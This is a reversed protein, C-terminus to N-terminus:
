TVRFKRENGRRASFHTEKKGTKDIAQSFVVYTGKPLKHKLKFSFATTGKAKVLAPRSCRSHKKAKVRKFRGNSRLVLCTPHKKAAIKAGGSLRLLGIEVRAIGDSDSASGHFSKLKKSKVKSKLGLIKSHPEDNASGGGGGGGGTGPTVTQDPGAFTGFDSQAVARYHFTAPLGSLAASFSTAGNSPGIPQAATSSGYSPTPGFEFHVSTAAGGPDVSGNLTAAGGGVGSAPGTDVAPAYAQAFLSHTSSGNTFLFFPTGLAGGQCASGDSNFPNATCGSSIPERTDVSSSISVGSGDMVFTPNAPNVFHGVFAQNTGQRWSVYPTNGSFTVDARAANSTAPSIPQGGNAIKFRAEGGTGVLRAVFIRTLGSVNEDWVVWPVTPTGSTMTGAAVRPDEADTTPDSNLTCGRESDISESCAGLGGNSTDLIGIGNRGVLQWQIGGDGSGAVGKAAFVLKKDSLGSTGTGEEYWVVWPVADSPGTFAIDPEVGNRTPDVNLSPDGAVRDIGTQQWCFGGVSPVHTTADVVGLPKIGDCNSLGGGLPKEVFIQDVTPDKEQWTVWPGPKSSDATSGGAVSPNEAEDGTHINLSPVPISGDNGRGQGAFIWKGQNVDGTNDFRSAFVQSKAFHTNDEYWTAWPVTRGAGAFDIEPAEGDQGQDFNLSGSFTGTPSSKGGATGSGRTTWAGKFSRVFAQDHGGAPELQRFIAWPVAPSTATLSGGVVDANTPEEASVSETPQIGATPDNNVQSGDSPLSSFAGFAQAAVVAAFM